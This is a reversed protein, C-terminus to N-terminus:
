AVGAVDGDPSLSGQWLGPNSRTESQFLIDCSPTFDEDVWDELFGWMGIALESVDLFTLQHNADSGSASMRLKVGDGTDWVFPMPGFRTDISASRYLGQLMSTDVDRLSLNKAKQCEHKCRTSCNGHSIGLYTAERNRKRLLTRPLEINSHVLAPSAKCAM